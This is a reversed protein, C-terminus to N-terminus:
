EPRRVLEIAEGGGAPMRSPFSISPTTSGVIAGGRLCVKNTAVVAHGLYANFRVDTRKVTARACSGVAQAPAALGATM